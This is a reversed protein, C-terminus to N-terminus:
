LKEAKLYYYPAIVLSFPHTEEILFAVYKKISKEERPFGFFPKDIVTTMGKKELLQKIIFPNFLRECSEGTIPNVYRFKPVKRRQGKEADRVFSSIQEGYLGATM